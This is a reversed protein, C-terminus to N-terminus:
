ELVARQCGERRTLEFLPDNHSFRQLDDTFGYVVGLMRESFHVVLGLFGLLVAVFAPFDLLVQM